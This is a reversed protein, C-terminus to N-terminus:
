AKDLQMPPIDTTLHRLSDLRPHGLWVQMVQRHCVAMRLSMWVTNSVSFIGLALIALTFPSYLGKTYGLMAIDQVVLPNPLLCWSLALVVLSRGLLTFLLNNRWASSRSVLTYVAFPDVPKPANSNADNLGLLDDMELVSIRRSTEATESLGSAQSTLPPQMLLANWDAPDNLLCWLNSFPLSLSSHIVLLDHWCGSILVWLDLDQLYFAECENQRWLRLSEKHGNSGKLQICSTQPSSCLMLICLAFQELQDLLYPKILWSVKRGEQFITSLPVTLYTSHVAPIDFVNPMGTEKFNICDVADQIPRPRALCISMRSPWHINSHVDSYLM